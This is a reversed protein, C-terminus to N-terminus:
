AGPGPRPLLVSALVRLTRGEGPPRGVFRLLVEAMAAGLEDVEADTLHLGVERFGIRDAVPDIRGGDLYRDLDEALGALFALFGTRLQEATIAGADDPGLDGGALVYTREVAGRVSREAAVALVGHEALIRVHRYLSAAPVDGLEELLAATTLRRDGLFRRVIRMRVPHLVVETLDM